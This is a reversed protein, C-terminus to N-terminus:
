AQAAKTRQLAHLQDLARQADDRCEAQQVDLMAKEQAYRTEKLQLSHYSRCARRM